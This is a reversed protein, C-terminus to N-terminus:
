LRKLLHAFAPTQSLTNLTSDADEGADICRISLEMMRACWCAAPPLFPARIVGDATRTSSQAGLDVNQDILVAQREPDHQGGTLRGVLGSHLGKDVAELGGPRQDCISAVVGAGDDVKDGRAAAAGVDRGLPVSLDLAGDIRRDVSLAIHDLSVETLELM